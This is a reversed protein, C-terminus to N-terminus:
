EHAREAAAYLAEIVRAQAVGDEAPALLRGATVSRQFHEIQRAYQNEAPIEEVKAQDGRVIEIRGPATDPRFPAQVVVRGDSCGIELRQQSAEVFSTEVVALRGGPFVLTGGFAMDVGFTGEVVQEGSVKVPEAGFVFRAANVAYCGVDMLAGGELDAQLRVNAKSTDIPYAFAASVIRPEGIAGSDLIERLRAQQAHHRWMFAEMLLVGADRCAHAMAQADAASRALPKECLVHKGAKAAAITWERHLSNPLGIYVIDVDPDALLAEYSGHARAIGFKAAFERARATDRSGVAII